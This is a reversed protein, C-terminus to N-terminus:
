FTNFSPPPLLARPPAALRAVVGSTCGNQRSHVQSDSIARPSWGRGGGLPPSNPRPRSKGRPLRSPAPSSIPKLPIRNPGSCDTGVSFRAVQALVIWMSYRAARFGRRKPPPLPHDLVSSGLSSFIVPLVVAVGPHDLVYSGCRSDIGTM